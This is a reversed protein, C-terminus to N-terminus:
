PHVPRGAQVSPSCCIPVYVTLRPCWSSWGARRLFFVDVYVDRVRESDFCTLKQIRTEQFCIHAKRQDVKLAPRGACAFAAVIMLTPPTCPTTCTARGSRCLIRMPKSVFFHAGRSPFAGWSFGLLVPSRCAASTLSRLLVQNGSANWDLLLRTKPAPPSM